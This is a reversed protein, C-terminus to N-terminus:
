IASLGEGRRGNSVQAFRRWLSQWFAEAASPPILGM